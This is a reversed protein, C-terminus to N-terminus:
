AFSPKKSRAERKELFGESAIDATSAKPLDFAVSIMFYDRVPGVMYSRLILRPPRLPRLPRLPICILVATGNESARRLKLSPPGRTERKESRAVLWEVLFVAKEYYCCFARKGFQPQPPRPYILHSPSLPCKCLISLFFPFSFSYNNIKFLQFM